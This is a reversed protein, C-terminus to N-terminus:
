VPNSARGKQGEVSDASVLRAKWRSNGICLTKEIGNRAIDEKKCSISLSYFCKHILIHDVSCRWHVQLGFAYTSYLIYMVLVVLTLPRFINYRHVYKEIRITLVVYLVVETMMGIRVALTFVESLPHFQDCVQKAALAFAENCCSHRSSRVVWPNFWWTQLTDVQSPYTLIM